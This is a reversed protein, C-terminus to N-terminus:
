QLLRKWPRGVSRRGVPKYDVGCKALRQNDMRYVHEMWQQKQDEIKDNISFIDLEARIHENRM